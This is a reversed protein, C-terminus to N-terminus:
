EGLGRGGEDDVMAPIIRERERERKSERKEFCSRSHGRMTQASTDNGSEAITSTEDELFQSVRANGKYHARASKSM